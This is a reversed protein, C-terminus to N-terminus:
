RIGAEKEKIALEEARIQALKVKHEAAEVERRQRVERRSEWHWEYQGLAAGLSVPLAIPWGLSSFFALAKADSIYMTVNFKRFLHPYAFGSIMLYLLTGLTCLVYIM